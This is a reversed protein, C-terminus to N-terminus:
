QIKERKAKERVALELVAKQTIGLKDALKQLLRKAEISPRWSTPNNSKM